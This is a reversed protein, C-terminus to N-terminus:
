LVVEKNKILFELYKLDIENDVDIASIEDMIYIAANDSSLPYVYEPNLLFERSYFYISANMDYVKPVDQTRLVPKNLKKSVHAKGEEDVEVMNFYPSRRAEVVSFLIEPKKEEFIKLCNDLDEITRIPSTADIDVVVDYKENHKKESEKFAHRIADVKGAKDSALEEPRIIVEIGNDKAVKAIEESDTSCVIHKAKGWRKAQEISYVMLPKGAVERINKNKVRKSGGRACITILINLSM